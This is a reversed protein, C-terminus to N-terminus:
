SVSRRSGIISEWRLEEMLRIVALEKAKAEVDMTMERGLWCDPVDGPDIFDAHPRAAGSSWGGRPSSIHCYQEREFFRCSELIGGITGGGPLHDLTYGAEPHTMRPFLPSMIRFAGIGLRQVTGLAMHLNNANHM